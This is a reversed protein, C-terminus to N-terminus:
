EQNEKGKQLKKFKEMYQDFLELFADCEDIPIVVIRKNDLELLICEENYRGGAIAPEKTKMVGVKRKYDFYNENAGFRNYKKYKYNDPCDVPIEIYCRVVREYPVIVNLRNRQGLGFHETNSNHILVGHSGIKVYRKNCKLAIFVSIFIEIVFVFCACDYINQETVPLYEAAFLTFVLIFLLDIAAILLLAIVAFCIYFLFSHHAKALVSRYQLKYEM